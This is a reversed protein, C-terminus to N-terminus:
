FPQKCKEIRNQQFIDRMLRYLIHEIFVAKM